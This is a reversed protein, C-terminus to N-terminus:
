RREGMLQTAQMRHSAPVVVVQVEGINQYAVTDVGEDSAKEVEFVGTWKIWGEVDGVEEALPHIIVL